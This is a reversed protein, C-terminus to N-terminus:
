RGNERVFYEAIKASTFPYKSLNINTRSAQAGESRPTLILDVILRHGLPKGRLITQAPQAGESCFAVIIQLTLNSYIKMTIALNNHNILKILEHHGVLGNILEILEHNGVLGDILEILKIHCFAM